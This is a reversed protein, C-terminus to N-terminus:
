QKILLRNVVKSTDNQGVVTLVYSGKVFERTDIELNLKGYSSSGKDEYVLSGLMNHIRVVYSDDNGSNLQIRLTLRDNFPNPFTAISTEIDQTELSNENAIGPMDNSSILENVNCIGADSLKKQRKPNGNVDKWLIKVEYDGDLIETTFFTNGPLATIEGSIDTGVIDWEFPVSFPNRNVIEWKKFDDTAETCVSNLILGRINCPKGDSLKRQRKNGGRWEKWIIKVINDGEKTDTSFFTSGPALDLTGGQESKELNWEIPMNFSNRNVIEWRRTAEPNDSCVPELIPGKVRCLLRTDNASHENETGSEDLWTLTFFQSADSLSPTFFENLGPQLTISGSLDSDEVSWFANVEFYNPNSIVWSRQINPNTICVSSVFLDKTVSLVTLEVPITVSPNLSDSSQINLATEYLGARLNVASIPVEFQGSEGALITKNVVPFRLERAERVKLISNDTFKGLLEKRNGNFESYLRGLSMGTVIVTGTGYSYEAMTPLQTSQTEVIIQANAPLNTLTHTSVSPGGENDITVPLGEVAPHTPDVVTNASERGTFSASVGGVVDVTTQSLDSLQLQLVGGNRVYDEFVAKNDSIEDYFASGNGGSVIVLDYLQLDTSAVMHSRIDTPRINYQKEIFFPMYVSGSNNNIVLIDKVDDEPNDSTRAENIEDTIEIFAEVALDSQSASNDINIVRITSEDIFLTEKITDTPSVVFAPLETGEQLLSISPTEGDTRNTLTTRDQASISFSILWLLPLCLSITFGKGSRPHLM